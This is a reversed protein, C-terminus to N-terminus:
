LDEELPLLGQQLATSVMSEITDIPLDLQYAFVGVSPLIDICARLQPQLPAQWHALLPLHCLATLTPWLDTYSLPTPHLVTARQGSPKLLSPHVLWTHVWEGVETYKPLRTTRKTLSKAHAFDLVMREGSPTTITMVRLGGESLPLTLAAFFHQMVGDRGWVSLFLVKNDTATVVADLMLGNDLEILPRPPLNM